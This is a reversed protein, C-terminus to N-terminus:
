IGIWTLTCTTSPLTNTTSDNSWAPLITFDAPEHGFLAEKKFPCSVVSGDGVHKIRFLGKPVGNEYIIAHINVRSMESELTTVININQDPSVKTVINVSDSITFRNVKNMVSSGRIIVESVQNRVDPDEAVEALYAHALALYSNSGRQSSQVAQISAVLIIVTVALILERLYSHNKLLLVKIKRSFGMGFLLGSSCAALHLVAISFYIDGIESTIMVRAQELLQIGITMWIIAQLTRSFETPHKFVLVISTGILGWLAASSGVVRFLPFQGYSEMLLYMTTYGIISAGFLLIATRRAGIIPEVVWGFILLLVANTALHSWDEHLFGATVIRYVEGSSVLGGIFVGANSNETMPGIFWFLGALFAVLSFTLWPLKRTTLPKSIKSSKKQTTSKM